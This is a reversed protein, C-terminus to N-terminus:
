AERTESKPYTKSVSYEILKPNSLYLKHKCDITIKTIDMYEYSSSIYYNVQFVQNCKKVAAQINNSM